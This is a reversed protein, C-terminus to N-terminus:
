LSHLIFRAHRRPLFLYSLKTLFMESSDHICKSRERNTRWRRPANKSKTYHTSSTCIFDISHVSNSRGYLKSAMNNAKLQGVGGLGCWDPGRHVEESAEFPRIFRSWISGRYDTATKAARSRTVQWTVNVRGGVNRPSWVESLQQRWEVIGCHRRAM